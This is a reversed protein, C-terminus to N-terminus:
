ARELSWERGAVDGGLMGSSVMFTQTSVAELAQRALLGSAGMQPASGTWGASSPPPRAFFVHQPVLLQGSCSGAAPCQKGKRGFGRLRRLRELPRESSVGQNANTSGCPLKSSAHPLSIDSYRAQLMGM